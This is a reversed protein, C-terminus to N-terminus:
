TFIHGSEECKFKPHEGGYGAYVINRSGCIPCHIKPHKSGLKKNCIVIETETFRGECRNDLCEFWDARYNFWVTKVEDHGAM